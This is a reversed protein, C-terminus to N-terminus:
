KGTEIGRPFEFPLEQTFRGDELLDPTLIFTKPYPLALSKVCKM